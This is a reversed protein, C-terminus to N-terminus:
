IKIAVSLIEQNINHSKAFIAKESNLSKFKSVFRRKEKIQELKIILFLSTFSIMVFSFASWVYAGYGNMLFIENSM